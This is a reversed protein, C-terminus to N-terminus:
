TGGLERLLIEELRKRAEGGPPADGTVLSVFELIQNIALPDRRDLREAFGTIADREARAAADGLHAAVIRVLRDRGPTPM